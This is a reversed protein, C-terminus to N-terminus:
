APEVAVRSPLVVLFEFMHVPTSEAVAVAFEAAFGSAAIVVTEPVAVEAAFVYPVVIPKVLTLM